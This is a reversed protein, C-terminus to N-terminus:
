AKLPLRSSIANCIKIANDITAKSVDKFRMVVHDGKSVVDVLSLVDDPLGKMVESYSIGLNRSICSRIEYGIPGEYVVHALQHRKCLETILEDIVCRLYTLNSRIFENGMERVALVLAGSGTLLYKSENILKDKIELAYEFNRAAKELEESLRMSRVNIANYAYSYLANLVDDSVASWRYAYYLTKGLRTLRKVNNSKINAVDDLLEKPVGVNENLTKIYELATELTSSINTLKMYVDCRGNADYRYVLGLRKAPAHTIAISNRFTAGSTHLVDIAYSSVISVRKLDELKPFEVFVRYRKRSLAIALAAAAFVSDVGRNIYITVSSM